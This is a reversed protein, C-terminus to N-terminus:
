MHLLYGLNNMDLKVLVAKTADKTPSSSSAMKINFKERCRWKKNRLKKGM